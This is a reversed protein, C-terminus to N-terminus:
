IQRNRRVRAVIRPANSIKGIKIVAVAITATNSRFVNRFTSQGKSIVNRHKKIKELEIDDFSLIAYVKDSIAPPRSNADPIMNLWIIEFTGAAIRMSGNAPLRLARRNPTSIPPSPVGTADSAERIEMLIKKLSSFSLFPKMFDNKKHFIANRIKRIGTAIIRM